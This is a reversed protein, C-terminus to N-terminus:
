LTKVFTSVWTFIVVIEEMVGSLEWNMSWKRKRERPIM